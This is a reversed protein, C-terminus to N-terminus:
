PSRGTDPPQQDDADSGAWRTLLALLGCIVAVVGFALWENM